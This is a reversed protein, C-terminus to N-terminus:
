DLLEHTMVDWDSSGSLSGDYTKTGTTSFVQEMGVCNSATGSNAVDFTKTWGSGPTLTKGRFNGVSMVVSNAASVDISGSFSSSDSGGSCAGGSGNTNLTDSNGEFAGGALGSYAFVVICADSPVDGPNDWTATVSGSTPSGSAKFLHVQTQARGGCMDSMRTWTVGMGTVSDVYEAENSEKTGVAVFYQYGASPTVSSTTSLGGGACDGKCTGSADGNPGSQYVIDNGGGGGTTTTTTSTTTTSSTSTTTSTTTSSPVTTTTTSTTTTSTTTSTTTTSSSSMSTTTTSTTTTSGGSGSTATVIVDDVHVHENGTSEHTVFRMQFDAVGIYAALDYVQAHWSNDDDGNDSSWEDLTEWASGNWVELRLFEGKDLKSDLFRLLELTVSAYGQLDIPTAQTITCENDCNDCHAAPSGSADGPYGNSTHLSETSWDGDGTEDWKSLGSDFEDSFLVVESGPGMTTTTTSTTTTTVTSPPVTTPPTGGGTTYSVHLMAAAAADGDHSEAIRADSKSMTTGSVVLVLANGSAWDNHEVIQQIVTKIDPSEQASGSDGTTDWAAPNWDVSAPTLGRSTIDNDAESFTPPDGHDQGHITLLTAGSATEDVTFQVSAHEITADAPIDVNTFRLGITQERNDYAMELDSSGNNVSGPVKEEADDSDASVQYWKTIAGVSLHTLMGGPSVGANTLAFRRDYAAFSGSGSITTLADKTKGAPLLISSQDAIPFPLVNGDEAVVDMSLGNLTPAHTRLGANLHRILVQEGTQLSHDVVPSADPYPQGNILFYAPSYNMTSPYAATGFTGDAVAANLVPDLESYILLVENDYSVGPYAEGAASDIKVLGYLGMPVAIQVHSGSHYPYSGPKVSPWDYSAEGGGAAAEHTFSTVRTRGQADPATRVPNLIATQGPIVISVPHDSLENRVHVTLSTDGPPVTIAPGPVTPDGVSSFGPGAPAFGWTDIVAGDPMTKTFEQAVLYVDAAFSPLATLCVAIWALALRRVSRISRKDNM